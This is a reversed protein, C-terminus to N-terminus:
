NIVICNVEEYTDNYVMKSGCHGYVVEYRAKKKKQHREGKKTIIEDTEKLWTKGETEWTRSGNARWFVLLIKKGGALKLSPTDSIQSHGNWKSSNIVASSTMQMSIYM